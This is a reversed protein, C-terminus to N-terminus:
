YIHINANIIAANSVVKRSGGTQRSFDFFLESDVALEHAAAAPNEVDGDVALPNERLVVGPPKRGFLFDEILEAGQAQLSEGHMALDLIKLSFQFFDEVVTGCFQLGGLRCKKEEILRGISELQNSFVTELPRNLLRRLLLI